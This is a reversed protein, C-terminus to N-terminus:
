ATGPVMTPHPHQQHLILRDQGRRDGPPETLV